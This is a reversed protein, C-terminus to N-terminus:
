YDLSNRIFADVERWYKETDETMTQGHTAGHITIHDSGKAKTVEYLRNSQQVPVISDETGHIYLIPVESKRVAELVDDENFNLKKTIKVYLSSLAVTPFSPVGYINNISIKFVEKVDSYGSDSIVGKVNEHKLNNACLLATTGGMGLGFVFINAKDDAKAIHDAWKLVVDQEKIGMSIAEDMYEPVYVNFGLDYFHYIYSAMDEVKTTLSHLIIMYSHSTNKNKLYLAVEEEDKLNVKEAKVNLWKMHEESSLRVSIIKNAEEKKLFRGRNLFSESVVVASVINAVVLAIAVIIIIKKIVPNEKIKSIIM